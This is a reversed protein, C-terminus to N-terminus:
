TLSSKVEVKSYEQYLERGKESLMGYVFHEFLHMQVELFEFEETPFVKDDFIMQVQEVRFKSLIAANLDERYFGEKKGRNINDILNGRVFDNKFKLYEQWAERHFKQLDYLLSPNMDQINRRMCQAIQYLEDIANKANDAIGSFEERELEMQSKAVATVLGDKNTFYQYLTKKSMGVERAVDDMTVSRVGFKNFLAMTNVLIRNRVELDLKDMLWLFSCSNHFNGSYGVNRKSM